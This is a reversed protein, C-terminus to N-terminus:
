PTEVSLDARSSAILAEWQDLFRKTSFVSLAKERNRSGMEQRQAPTLRVFQEVAKDFSEISKPDFLFGNIGEEVIMPNDSVASCIIPLGCAMAECIVNATGEYFSPLCLFDHERYLNEIMTAPGNLELGVIGLRAIKAKARSYLTQNSGQECPVESGYWNLELGRDPYKSAWDILFFTNKQESYKAVVIGRFRPREPLLEERPSFRRTDVNNIICSVRSRISSRERLLKSQYHSNAVVRNAFRYLTLIVKKRFPPDAADINRESVIRPTRRSVGVLVLNLLNPTELFSVSVDAKHRVVDVLMNFKRLLGYKGYAIKVGIRHDVTPLFFPMDHYCFITVGYGREVLGNALAVFQRQAGGSALSDILMAVNLCKSM